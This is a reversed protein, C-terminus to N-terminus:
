GTLIKRPLLTQGADLSILTRLMPVARSYYAFGPLKLPSEISPTKDAYVASVASILFCICTTPLHESYHSAEGSALYDTTTEPCFLALWKLVNVAFFRQLEWLRARLMDLQQNPLAQHTGKPSICSLKERIRTSLPHSITLLNAPGVMLQPLYRYVLCKAHLGEQLGRRAPRLPQSYLCISYCRIDRRSSAQRFIFPGSRSFGVRDPRAM